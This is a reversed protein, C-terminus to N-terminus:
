LLEYEATSGYQFRSFSTSNHKIKTERCLTTRGAFYLNGETAIVCFISTTEPTSINNFSDTKIGNKLNVALM